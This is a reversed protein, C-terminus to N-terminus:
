PSSYSPTPPCILPGAGRPRSRNATRTFPPSTMTSTAAKSYPGSRQNAAGELDGAPTSLTRTRAGNRWNSRPEPREHRGAGIRSTLETDILDQLAHELLRRFLEKTGDDGLRALLDAYTSADDHRAM